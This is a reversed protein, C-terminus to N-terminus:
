AENLIKRSSDNKNDLIRSTVIGYKEVTGKLVKYLRYLKYSIFCIEGNVNKWKNISRLRFPVTIEDYAITNEM